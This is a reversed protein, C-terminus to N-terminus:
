GVARLLADALEDASNNEYLIRVAGSDQAFDTNLAISPIGYFAAEYLPLCFSEYSSTVVNFKAASYLNALETRNVSNKFSVELNRYKKEYLESPINKSDLVIVFKVFRNLKGDLTGLAALLTKFNKHKSFSSVAIFDYLKSQPRVEPMLPYIPKVFIETRPFQTSALEKMSKTQVWVSNINKIFWSLWLREVFTRLLVWFSDTPIPTTTILFRSHLYLNSKNKLRFIPPLNGFFLIEEQSRKKASFRLAFEAKIRSIVSPRVPHVVINLNKVLSLDYRSDVFLESVPGLEETVLIQDLLVKGGGTHINVAYIIM